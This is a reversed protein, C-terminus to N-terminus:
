YFLERIENESDIFEKLLKPNFEGCEGGCIMKLTKEPSYADKYVRKSVLADYVDALSVVQSWISIDNGKLGEPYGRGDWREHHHLAIDYAYDFIKHDRLQPIKELLRAGQTTHTKMIDYEEPTLRGPKNLIADDIAIKGIDHMISAM